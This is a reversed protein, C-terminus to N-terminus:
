KISLNSEIYASVISLMLCVFFTKIALKLLENDFIIKKNTIKQILLYSGFASALLIEPIEFVGHLLVKHILMGFGYQELLARIKIGFILFNYALLINSVVGITLISIMLIVMILMNHMFIEKISLVQIKLNIKIGTINLGVLTFISVTATSLMISLVFPKTVM